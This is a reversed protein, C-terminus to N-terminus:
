PLDHSRYEVGGPGHMGVGSSGPAWAGCVLQDCRASPARASVLRPESIALRGALGTQDGGRRLGGNGTRRADQCPQGFGARRPFPCLGPSGGQDLLLPPTPAEAESCRRGRTVRGLQSESASCPTTRCAVDYRRSSGCRVSGSGEHSTCRTPRAPRDGKARFARFDARNESQQDFAPLAAM